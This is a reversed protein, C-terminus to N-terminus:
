ARNQSKLFYLLKFFDFLFLYHQNMGYHNNHFCSTIISTMLKIPIIRKLRTETLVDIDEPPINTNMPRITFKRLYLNILKWLPELTGATIQKSVNMIYIMVFVLEDTFIFLMHIRLSHNNRFVTFMVANTENPQNCGSICVNLPGSGECIQGM